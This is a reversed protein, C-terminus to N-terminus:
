KFSIMVLTKEIQDFTLKQITKVGKKDKQEEEIALSQVDAALLKGRVTSKDKLEIKLSRGVHKVYQRPLRLPQDIGPTTVELNYDELVNDKDIATSLARSISACDDITVGADGDVIVTLKPPNMRANVRVDLVFHASGALHQDALQQIQAVTEM